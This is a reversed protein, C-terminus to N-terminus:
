GPMQPLDFYIHLKHRKVPTPWVAIWGRSLSCATPFGLVGTIYRCPDYQGEKILCLPFLLPRGTNWEQIGVMRVPGPLVEPITYKPEFPELRVEIKWDLQPWPFRRGARREWLAVLEARHRELLQVATM